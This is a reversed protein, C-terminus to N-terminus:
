KHPVSKKEEVFLEAERELRLPEEARIESISENSKM